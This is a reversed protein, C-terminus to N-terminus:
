FSYLTNLLELTVSELEKEDLKQLIEVAARFSSAVGDANNGIFDLTGLLVLTVALGLENNTKRFLAEAKKLYRRSEDFDENKLSYLGLVLQLSAETSTDGIDRAIQYAERIQSISDEYSGSEYLTLSQVSDVLRNLLPEIVELDVEPMGSESEERLRNISAIDMAERIKEVEKIKERLDARLPSNVSTYIRLAEMFYEMATKVKRDSLYVDGMSDLAFAMLEEDNMESAVRYARELYDLAERTDGEEAYFGAIRVLTDFEEELLDELKRLYKELSEGEDEGKLFDFIGLVAFIMM